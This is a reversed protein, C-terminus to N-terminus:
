VRRKPDLLLPVLMNVVATFNIKSSSTTMLASTLINVVEERVRSNRNELYVCLAGVVTKPNINQFLDMCTMMILQKIVAKQNGFHQALLSVVQQLHAEM